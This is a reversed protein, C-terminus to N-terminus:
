FIAIGRRLRLAPKKKVKVGDIHQQKGKRRNNITKLTLKLLESFLVVSAGTAIIRAWMSVSM